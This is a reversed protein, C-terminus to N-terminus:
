DMIGREPVLRPGLGDDKPKPRDVLTMREPTVWDIKSGDLGLQVQYRTPPQGVVGSSGKVTWLGDKGEVTVLDEAHYVFGEAEPM